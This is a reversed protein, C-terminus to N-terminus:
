FCIEHRMFDLCRLWLLCCQRLCYFPLACITICVSIDLYLTMAVM